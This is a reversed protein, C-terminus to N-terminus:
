YVKWITRITCSALLLTLVSTFDHGLDHYEYQLVTYLQHGRFEPSCGCVNYILIKMRLKRSDHLLQLRDSTSKFLIEANGQGALACLDVKEECEARSTKITETLTQIAQLPDLGRSLNDVPKLNPLLGQRRLATIQLIEDELPVPPDIRNLPNTQFAMKAHLQLTPTCSHYDISFHIDVSRVILAATTHAQQQPQSHFFSSRSVLYPVAFSWFFISGGMPTAHEKGAKVSSLAISFDSGM